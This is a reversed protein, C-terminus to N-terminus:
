YAIPCDHPSVYMLGDVYVSPEDHGVYELRVKVSYGDGAHQFTRGTIHVNVARTSGPEGACPYRFESGEWDSGSLQDLRGSPHKIWSGVKVGVVRNEIIKHM